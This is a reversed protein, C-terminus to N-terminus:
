SCLMGPISILACSGYGYERRSSRFYKLFLDANLTASMLVIKLDPRRRLLQKLIVLLFDTNIDREHVQYHMAFRFMAHATYTETANGCM